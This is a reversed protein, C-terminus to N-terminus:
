LVNVALVQGVLSTNSRTIRMVSSPTRVGYRCLGRHRCDRVYLSVAGNLRRGEVSSPRPDIEPAGDAGRLRKPGGGSPTCSAPCPPKMRVAVAAAAASASKM